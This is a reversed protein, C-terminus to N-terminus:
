NLLANLMWCHGYNKAVIQSTHIFVVELFCLARKFGVDSFRPCTRVSKHGDTGAGMESNGAVQTMWFGGCVNPVSEWDEWDWQGEQWTGKRPTLGPMCRSWSQLDLGVENPGCRTMRASKGDLSSLALFPKPQDVWGRTWNRAQGKVIALPIIRTRPQLCHYPHENQPAGSPGIGRWGLRHLVCVESGCAVDM